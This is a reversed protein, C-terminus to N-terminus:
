DGRLDLWAREAASLSLELAAVNEAFEEPQLCGVLAYIGDWEGLVYALALQPLTVGKQAALPEARALREFNDPSGYSDAALQLMEPLTDRTDPRIRGTLFGGALSSWTFLAVGAERYWAHAADGGRGGISICGPWPPRVQEALSFQPSSAVFPVLDHTQAYANAEAIRAHTWNSGGFAGILGARHHANLTEVLPGVPQTPDDRHLLYLDIHDVGLRALSDHLDATIDFPTVRARDQNPHAGKDLIVVQDRVGRAAIWQGLARECDGEGYVHAADFTNGGQEFVGDLLRFSYDLDATSLMMTGQVLRALPRDIGPLYRYQM